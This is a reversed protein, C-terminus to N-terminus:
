EFALHSLSLKHHIQQIQYGKRKRQDVFLGWVLQIGKVRTATFTKM